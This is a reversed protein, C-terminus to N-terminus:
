CNFSLESLEQSICVRIYDGRKFQAYEEGGIAITVTPTPTLNHQKCVLANLPIYKNIIWDHSFHNLLQISIYANLKDFVNNMILGASIGDDVANRTFRIGLRSSNASLNKSLSVAFDTICPRQLPYTIGHSIGFYAGDIFVPVKLQDASDLLENYGPYFSGNGSFPFSIIVCDNSDLKEDELSVISRGYSRALIQTLVFDSRSSRVRRTPFRSIFEGFAPTTGASFCSYNFQDLGAVSNYSSNTLWNRWSQDLEKHEVQRVGDVTIQSMLNNIFEVTEPIILPDHSLHM